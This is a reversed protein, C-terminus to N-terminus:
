WMMDDELKDKLGEDIQRENLLQPNDVFTVPFDVVRSRKWVAQAQDNYDMDPIDNCVLILQFRPPFVTYENSFLLRASLLDNGTLKKMFGSNIKHGLEPEVGILVRALRSAVIEPAPASSSNSRDCTM